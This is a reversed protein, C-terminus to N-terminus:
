FEPMGKVKELKPPINFQSYGDTPNKNYFDQHYKEAPWFRPAPVVETVIPKQFNAQHQAISQQAQQKQLESHYMITSRYQTGEDNGQRNLTTPDHTKFHVELIKM